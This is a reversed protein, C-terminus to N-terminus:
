KLLIMKRIKSVEKTKLKYFYIGSSVPKNNDDTGNWTVSYHSLSETAKANVHNICELCELTKVKQGKVNYIVIRWPPCTETHETSETTSFNITTEPNFPNPANFFLENNLETIINDDTSVAITTFFIATEDELVHATAPYIDAFTLLLGETQTENEIGVTAYNDGLDVNNVENYQFLIAGDGTPTPFYEPDYLIVEFTEEYYPNYVNEWDYWEIIYSNNESDYYGYINGAQLNDWFPAIM